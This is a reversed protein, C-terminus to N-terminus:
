LDDMRGIQTALRMSENTEMNLLDELLEKAEPIEAKESLTKYLEMVQNQFGMVDRYIGQFDQKVYREDCTHYAKIPTHKLYDYVRTNLTNKASQHEFEGVIRALESEHASLYELLAQAREDEHLTACHALCQALYHHLDRTWDILERFTKIEM